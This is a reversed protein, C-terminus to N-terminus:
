TRPRSLRPAIVSAIILLIGIPLMRLQPLNGALISKLSDWPGFQSPHWVPSSSVPFMVTQVSGISAVVVSYALAISFIVRWYKNKVKTLYFPIGLALLPIVPLLYRPGYQYGGYTAQSCIHLLLLGPLVLLVQKARAYKKPMHFIGALGFLLIPSFIFLSYSPSILYFYLHSFFNAISWFPVTDAVKGALNPFALLNGFQTYNYIFSPLLGALFGGLYLWLEKAKKGMAIVIFLGLPLTLPLMSFFLMIGMYFGAVALYILKQDRYLYWFYTFVAVVAWFTAYIDHHMVGAYPWIITGFAFAAATVLSLSQKKSVYYTMLYILITTATMMLTSTFFTIIHVAYDYHNLFYFRGMMLPTYVIAGLVTQGPQKMPYIARGYRFTEDGEALKFDPLVRDILDYRGRESLAVVTAAQLGFYKANWSNITATYVGAVFLFIFIITRQM